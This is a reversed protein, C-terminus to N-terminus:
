ISKSNFKTRRMWLLWLSLVLVIMTLQWLLDHSINYARLGMNSTIFILTSLRLLNVSYIIPLNISLAKVKEKFSSSASAILATFFIMGKWGTCDKIISFDFRGVTVQTGAYSTPFNLIKFLSVVQRATFEQLFRLDVWWLIIYLFISLLSLKILFVLVEFIKQNKDAKFM